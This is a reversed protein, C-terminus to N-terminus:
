FVTVDSGHDLRKMGSNAIVLGVIARREIDSRSGTDSTVSAALAGYKAANTALEHAAVALAQAMDQKVMVTPGDIQTRM